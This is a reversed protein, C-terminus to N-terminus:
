PTAAGADTKRTEGPTPSYGFDDRKLIEDRGGFRAIKEAQDAFARADVEEPDVLSRLAAELTSRIEAHDPSEGLDAAEHPDAELDFLQPTMGVYHIYKWRGQRLMFSGTVAGAAHYQSLIARNPDPRRLTEFLSRGPLQMEEDDPVIGLAELFTPYLDLLCVPSDEIRGRDIDAGAMILPVGVSEEHFSMKGWMGHNGLMEGHDSAYILRTNESLGTEDLTALLQGVHHDLLSVMGLYCRIAIRRTEETFYRDYPLVGTIAKLFPHKVREAAGCLRPPPIEVDEYLAYFEPPAQLPFHPMVFSVFLMWPRDSPEAARARLWETARAAIKRDYRTYSSEQPGIERAFKAAGSREPADKRVLGIVDGLGDPVHLNNIAETFGGDMEAGRYHLKGIAAIRHGESRLRHAWSRVSGDYPTANDWFGTEHVHRGTALCARAPVCIPSPTYANTFRTGKEALADLHPTRVLPHGACGMVERNHQDSLIFLLNQPKVDIGEWGAGIPAL